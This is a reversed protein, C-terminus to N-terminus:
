EEGEAAQALPLSVEFVAGTRGDERDRVRITGQHGEVITKCIALGLGSHRVGDQQREPPRNSHFRQFIAEREHIPVGPGEDRVAILVRDQAGTAFIEVLGGVPSFSVANDILNDLVRALRMEEGMVVTSGERPRAFALKVGDRAHVGTHRGERGEVIQEIMRGMDTPEFRARSLESDVRSVESIDTILRDMRRVDDDAVDLLQQRLAPDEIKRLGEIASRLSAIPNKIEHAVDAAFADIADIRSRLSETMDSVARALLGIEDRRQPMRPVSVQRERGRRVKIAARTLQLLPDVVTRALFLSLAVSILIVLVTFLFIKSREARVLRRASRPNTTVLVSLAGDQREAAGTVVPTYDGSYYLIAAPNDPKTQAFVAYDDRRASDPESYQMPRQKFILADVFRDLLRTMDKIFDEDEASRLVYAPEGTRFSDYILTGRGDFFRIRAEYRQGIARTVEDFAPTDLSSSLRALLAATERADERREEFLHERFNDLFLLGGMLLLIAFINVALIRNALSLRNSYRRLAEAPSLRRMLARLAGSGTETSAARKM